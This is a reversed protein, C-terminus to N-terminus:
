KRMKNKMKSKLNSDLMIDSDSNCITMHYSKIDYLATVTVFTVHDCTVIFLFIFPELFFSIIVIHKIYISRLSLM